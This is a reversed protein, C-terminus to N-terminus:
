NGTESVLSLWDAATADASWHSVSEVARSRMLALAEDDQSLMSCIQNFAEEINFPNVLAGNYRDRVIEPIAGVDTGIPVAGCAMGEAVSRGFAQYDSLDIFFDNARLLRGVEQPRLRGWTVVRNGPVVGLDTLGEEDTGFVNVVISGPWEKLLRNVVAATRKPGRRPTEPRVMVAISRAGVTTADDRGGMNFVSRNISPSIRTVPLFTEQSVIKQLWATKVVGMMSNAAEFSGLARAYAESGHTYFLPEFDQIYYLPSVSPRSQCHARVQHVSSNTTAVLCCDEPIDEFRHIVRQSDTESWEYSRRYDERSGRDILIWGMNYNKVLAQFEQIVSNAGGSLPGAPLYFVIDRM